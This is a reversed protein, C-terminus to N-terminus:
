GRTTHDSQRSGPCGRSGQLRQAAWVTKSLSLPFLGVVVVVLVLRAVGGGGVAGAGEDALTGRQWRKGVELSSRGGERGGTWM